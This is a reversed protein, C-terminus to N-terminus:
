GCYQHALYSGFAWTVTVVVVVLVFIRYDPSNFWGHQHALTWRTEGATWGGPSDHRLHKAVDQVTLGPLRRDPRGAESGAGSRDDPPEPLGLWAHLLRRLRVLLQGAIVLTAVALAMGAGAVIPSCNPQAAAYLLAESENVTDSGKPFGV